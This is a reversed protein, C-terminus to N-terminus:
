WHVGAIVAFLLLAAGGGVVVGGLVQLPHWKCFHWGERWQKKPDNGRILWDVFIAAIIAIVIAAALIERM